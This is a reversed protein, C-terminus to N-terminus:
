GWNGIVTLLDSVNVAGDGNLDAPCPPGCPGWAGIVALLDSVDVIGDGNVDGERVVPPLVSAWTRGVRIEDTSFGGDNYISLAQPLATGPITLTAAPTAPEAAGVAPNVHLSWTMTADGNKVVRAALFVTAGQAVAVASDSHMTNPPTMLGYYGSPCLGMVMGNDWTGFALGATVGFGPNPRVLCSIYVVQDPDTYAAVARSYRTLDASAYPATFASGGSIALGTWSLGETTAGTPIQSLKFWAGGWGSGGNAGHLNATAGYELHDVAILDQAFVPSAVSAALAVAQLRAILHIHKM